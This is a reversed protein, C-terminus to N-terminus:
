LFVRFPLLFVSFLKSLHILPRVLVMFITANIYDALFMLSLALKYNLSSVWYMEDPIIPKFDWRIIIITLFPSTDRSFKDRPRWYSDGSTFHWHTWLINFNSKVLSLWIVHSLSNSYPYSLSMGNWVHDINFLLRSCWSWFYKLASVALFLLYFHGWWFYLAFTVM